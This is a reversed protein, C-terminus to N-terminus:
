GGQSDSHAFFVRGFPRRIKPALRTLIGPASLFMPHGRRYIRVEEVKDRSGPFWRNLLEVSKEALGRVHDDNLFQTRESEPRPMFCTLVSPRRTEKNERNIVWDAVNFDVVPSPSPVNTDFSGNYIVERFCINVVLYPAYRVGDMAQFQDPPLGRLLRKGIFKPCAMIATQAAITTVEGDKMYSVHVKSDKPEIQIVTAQKLIRGQGAKDIAEELAPSVRGLGGPRTFRKPDGGGGWGVTQAGILASTNETDAGWNNPGFNDFWAKLEPGYPKLLQA